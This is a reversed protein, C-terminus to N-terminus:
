LADTKEKKEFEFMVGEDSEDEIIELGNPGLLSQDKGGILGLQLRLDNEM